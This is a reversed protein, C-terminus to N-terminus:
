GSFRRHGRSSARSRRCDTERRRVSERGSRGLDGGDRRARCRCACRSRLPNLFSSSCAMFLSLLCTPMMPRPAMPAGIAAWIRRLCPWTVTKSTTGAAACFSAAAPAFVATDGLSTPSNDLMTMVISGCGSTNRSTTSPLLPRASPIFAPLIRTSMDVLPVATM